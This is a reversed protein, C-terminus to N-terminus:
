LKGCPRMVSWRTSPRVSYRRGSITAPSRSSSTSRRVRSCWTSSSFSSVSAAHAGARLEHREAQAQQRHRVRAGGGVVRGAVVEGAGDGLGAMAQDVSLWYKFLLLGDEVLLRELVPVQALFATSQAPTCYGMVPEVGARNYWSRDFLVIEGAAPLHEVYRQFYWQQAERESPKSLAVVRCQRPNLTEAIANIAGGEVATDRGEFIVLVRRGGAQVWRAMANLEVQLKRLEDEYDKKHFKSM